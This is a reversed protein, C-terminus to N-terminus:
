KKVTATKVEDNKRNELGDEPMLTAIGRNKTLYKKAVNHLDNVTLEKVKEPYNLIDYQDSDDLQNRSLANVWYNNDKLNTKYDNIEGEKYKDLDKKDNFQTPNVFISVVTIDDRASSAAILSAHGAHLAGMTPVLGISKGSTCAQTLIARIENINTCVKM